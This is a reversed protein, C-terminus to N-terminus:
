LALAQDGASLRETSGAVTEVWCFGGALCTLPERRGAPGMQLEGGRKGM